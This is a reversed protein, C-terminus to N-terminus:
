EDGGVNEDFWTLYQEVFERARVTAEDIMRDIPARGPTFTSGTNSHFAALVEPTSITYCLCDIWAQAMLPAVVTHITILDPAQKSLKICKM